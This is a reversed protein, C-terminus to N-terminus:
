LDCVFICVCGTAPSCQGGLEGSTSGIVILKQTPVGNATLSEQTSLGGNSQSLLPTAYEVQRQPANVGWSGM